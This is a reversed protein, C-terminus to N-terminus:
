RFRGQIVSFIKEYISLMLAANIVTQSLKYQIGTYFGPIGSQKLINQIVGMTQLHASQNTQQYTRIVIYPFTVVTAIAKSIAGSLFNVLFSPPQSQGRKLREYVSFQIIPNIVLMLSAQLGKFLSTVGEQRLMNRLTTLFSHRNVTMRTNIVWFPNTFISTIVGAILSTATNGLLSLVRPSIRKKLLEYWFFYIGYSLMNGILMSSMGSYYSSLTNEEKKEDIKDIKM